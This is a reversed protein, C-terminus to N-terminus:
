MFADASKVASALVKEAAGDDFHHFCLNFVRCEKTEGRALRRPMTADVPERVFSIHESRKVIGEWAKVDPWLDTLVFDVPGYGAAALKANMAPELLPTPGGAGACSDIFTYKSANSPGGLTSLLLNCAQEAPSGLASNSTQWM